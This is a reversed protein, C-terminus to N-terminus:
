VLLYTLWSHTDLPATMRPILFRALLGYEGHWFDELEIRYGTVHDVVPFKYLRYLSCLPTDTRMGEPVKYKRCRLLDIYASRQDLIDQPPPPPFNPFVQLSTQTPKVDAQEARNSSSPQQFRRCCWSLVKRVVAPLM